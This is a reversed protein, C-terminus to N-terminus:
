NEYSSTLARDILQSFLFLMIDQIFSTRQRYFLVLYDFFCRSCTICSWLRDYRNVGIECVLMSSQLSGRTHIPLGAFLGGHGTIPQRSCRVYIARCDELMSLYNLSSDFEKEGAQVM